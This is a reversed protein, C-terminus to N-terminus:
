FMNAALFGYPDAPDYDDLEEPPVQYPMELQQRCTRGCVIGGCVKLGNKRLRAAAAQLHGGSTLVDDILMRDLKPDAQLTAALKPYLEHVAREGGQSAPHMPETWRLEDQAVIKGGAAAAIRRALEFTRFDDAAGEIASSNPVPVLVIAEDHHEKCGQVILAAWQVFIEVAGEPNSPGFHYTEEGLRLSRQRGGPPRGKVAKTVQQAIFDEDRMQEVQATLYQMFSRVGLPM